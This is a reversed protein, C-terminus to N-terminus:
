GQKKNLQLKVLATLTINELQKKEQIRKLAVQIQSSNNPFLEVAKQYVDLAEDFKLQIELCEALFQFTEYSNANLVKRYNKEADSYRKLDMEATAIYFHFVTLGPNKELGYQFCKLVDLTSNLKKLCIGLVLYYALNHPDLVIAQKIIKAAENFQEKDKLTKAYEYLHDPNQLECERIPTLNKQVQRAFDQRDPRNDRVPTFPSVNERVKTREKHIAGETEKIEVGSGSLPFGFPKSQAFSQQNVHRAAGVQESPINSQPVYKSFDVKPNSRQPNPQNRAAIERTIAVMQDYNIPDTQQIADSKM